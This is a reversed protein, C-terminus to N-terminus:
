ITDTITVQLAPLPQDNEPVRVGVLTTNDSPQVGADLLTDLMSELNELLREDDTPTEILHLRWRLDGGGDLHGHDFDFFMPWVCPPNVDELRLCVNLGAAELITVLQTRSDIFKGM